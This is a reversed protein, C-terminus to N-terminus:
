FIGGWGICGPHNLFGKNRSFLSNGLILIYSGFGCYLFSLIRIRLINIFLFDLMIGVKLAFNNMKEECILVQFTLGVTVVMIGPTFLGFSQKWKVDKYAEPIYLV